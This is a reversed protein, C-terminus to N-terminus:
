GNSLQASQASSQLAAELKRKVAPWETDLISFFVSDFAQGNRRVMRSRLTGEEMAGLRLIAARSRANAAM